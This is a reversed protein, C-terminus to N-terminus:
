DACWEHRRGAWPVALGESILVEGLTRGDSLRLTVLPRGYGGREEGGEIAVVDPLLETLRHTAQDGLIAESPCDARHGTEPADISELRLREGDEGIRVTDGDVATLALSAVLIITPTTM